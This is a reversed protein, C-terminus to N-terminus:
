RLRSEAMRRKMDDRLQSLRERQARIRAQYEPTDRLAAERREQAERAARQDAALQHNRREAAIAPGLEAIFTGALARAILGRLYGVPSGRVGQAKLRGALEDVLAQAQGACPRLLMGAAAREEPLM